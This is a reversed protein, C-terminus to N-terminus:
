KEGAIRFWGYSYGDIELSQSLDKGRFSSPHIIMLEGGVVQAPLEIRQSNESLNHVILLINEKWKYRMVLVHESGADILEWEGMGIEPCSRRLRIMDKTWNLLSEPDGEQAAVNIHEFAYEGESILPKETDDAGSFGANEGGTWQMPTRVAEREPLSLDDGMGIEDGYRIVPVGPLSFMLSYALKLREPDGLMPALRRRIGRDYLQMDEEPGFAAYVEERQADSLRGLDLEDHNRLFNAWQSNGPIDRTEVLARELEQKKGTALAYFLHQNVYFNFMMHIGEGQEGFYNKNEDPSVNAEGLIIADGRRWQVHKRFDVIMEYNHDPDETSSYPDEIIFPVADLRFGAVGMWLYYSIVKKVEEHVEPNRNNLTPQFNYFRHFYYAGAKEDYTWTRDEVGPFVMGQDYDDPREDAWVYWDRYPSDRSSRSEQFWPHQDSTHNIVVDTIIRIGMQNAKYMFEVFDGGSGFRPDVYYYDSIDYGNDEDPSLQFPALWLVDVGLAKLYDLKEAMGKFDGIGNGDADLFTDVDLNYIIINKYWYEDESFLEKPITDVQVSETKTAILEVVLPKDQAHLFFPLPLLFTLRFLLKLSMKM